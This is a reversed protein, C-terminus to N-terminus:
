LSFRPNNSLFMDLLHGRWILVVKLYKGNIIPNGGVVFISFFEDFPDGTDWPQRSVHPQEPSVLLNAGRIDFKWEYMRTIPFGSSVAKKRM